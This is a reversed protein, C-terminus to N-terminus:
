FKTQYSSFLADRQLDRKLWLYLVLFFVNIHIGMSPYDSPRTDVLTYVITVVTERM